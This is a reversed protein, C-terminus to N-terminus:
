SEQVALQVRSCLPVMSSSPLFATTAVCPWELPLCIGPEMVSVCGTDAALKGKAHTGRDAIFLSTAKTIRRTIMWEAVCNPGTHSRHFERRRYHKSAHSLVLVVSQMRLRLCLLLKLDKSAHTLSWHSHPALNQRFVTLWKRSFAFYPVSLVASAYTSTHCFITLYLVCSKNHRWRRLWSVLICKKLANERGVLPM